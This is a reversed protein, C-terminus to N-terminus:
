RFHFQLFVFWVFLFLLSVVLSQHLRLQWLALCILFHCRGIWIPRNRGPSTLHTFAARKSRRVTRLYPRAQSTISSARSSFAFREPCDIGEAALWKRDIWYRGSRLLVTAQSYWKWIMIGVYIASRKSNRWGKPGCAPLRIFLYFSTRLHACQLASPFSISRRTRCTHSCSTSWLQQPPWQRIPHGEAAAGPPFTQDPERLTFLHWKSASSKDLRGRRVSSVLMRDSYVRMRWTRDLLTEANLHM